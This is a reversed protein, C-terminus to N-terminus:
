QALFPKAVRKIPPNDVAPGVPWCPSSCVAPLSALRSPSLVCMVVPQIVSIPNAAIRSELCGQVLTRFWLINQQYVDVASVFGYQESRFFQSLMALTAKAVSQRSAAGADNRGKMGSRPQVSWVM